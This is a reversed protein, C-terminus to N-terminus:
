QIPVNSLNQTPLQPLTGQPVVPPVEAQPMVPAINQPQPAAFLSMPDM